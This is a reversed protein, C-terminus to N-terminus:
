LKELFSMLNKGELRLSGKRCNYEDFKEIVNKDKGKGYILIPVPHKSHRKLQFPTAHDATICIITNKLKTLKKLEKDIKEIAKVKKNLDGLHGYTDPGKIQIYVNKKTKIINNIINKRPLIKMGLLKGLGLEIPMEGFLVWNRLKKLKPIKNGVGRFIITKNKLIKETRSIFNNIRSSTEEDGYCKIKVLRPKIANSIGNKMKYGPHTTTINKSAEKVIMIARYGITPIIKIGSSIKNIKDMLEKKPIESRVNILKKDKFEAFNCRLYIDKPNIKINIGVAEIVGRGPYDKVNNGLIAFQSEGSESAIGKIPWMLGNLSNKALYNLNPTKAITLSTRKGCDAIGDLIIIIKRM